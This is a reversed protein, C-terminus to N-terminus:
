LIVGERLDLPLTFLFVTGGGERAEVWIHGGHAEVFARCIALGLGSGPSPSSHSASADTLVRYFKDFIYKRETPEIGPGRDAIHVQVYQEEQHVCIDIPSGAPTYNVANELLNTIVQDILVNDIEVPPLDKPITVHVDRGQFRASMRDLVDRILGDLPYWVKELQLAGAEIRSMDLLNEVLGNLRDCEREIASTFGQRAEDDWQVEDAQLSTVATKITALPSRLDHSVSSLLTARLADTKQLIKVHLSERRLRDGEILVVAHELFASFFIGHQTSSEEEKGLGNEFPTCHQDEEIYLLLVGVVQQDTKLPILRQYRRAVSVRRQRTTKRVIKQLFAPISPYYALSQEQLIDRTSTNDIVWSATPQMEAAVRTYNLSDKIGGMVIFTEKEPLLFLCDYVGWSFFVNVLSHAVISLQRQLNEERNTARLVEYLM